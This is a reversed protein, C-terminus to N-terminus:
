HAAGPPLGERGIDADVWKEPNDLVDSPLEHEEWAGPSTTAFVCPSGGDWVWATTIPSPLEPSRGLRRHRVAFYIPGSSHDVIVFLHRRIADALCALKAQNDKKAAEHEVAGAVPAGSTIGGVPALPEVRGSEGPDAPRSFGVDCGLEALGRLVEDVPSEFLIFQDENRQELTRLLPQAQELFGSVDFPGSSGDRSRQNSPIDVTWVRVLPPATSSRMLPWSDTRGLRRWTEISAQDAFRTVELPEDPRGDRYRLDFDRMQVGGSDRILARAGVVCAAAAAAVLESKRDPSVLRRDVLMGNDNPSSDIQDHEVFRGVTEDSL